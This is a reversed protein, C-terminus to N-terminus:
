LDLNDWPGAVNIDTQVTALEDGGGADYSGNTNTRASNRVILSVGAVGAHTIGHDDNFNVTNGDIRNGQSGFAIGSGTNDSCINDVIANGGSTTTIGDGNRTCLNGRVLCSSTIRIGDSGAHESVTCDTVSCRAGTSIGTGLNGRVTCDTVTSDFVVRIGISENGTSTCGIV